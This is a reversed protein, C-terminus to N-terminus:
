VQLIMNGQLEPLSFIDNIYLIFLIPGFVSGQPVGRSPKIVKDDISINITRYIATIKTLISAENAKFKSKLIQDLM